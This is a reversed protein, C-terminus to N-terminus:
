RIGLDKGIAEIAADNSFHHQIYSSYKKSMKELIDTDNYLSIIADAFEEADDKVVVVSEIGKIGEAGVSTTIIPVGHYMAEVVKGKIGAGYRLPVIVLRSNNYYDRLEEDTVFGRIILNKSGLKLIEDPANSGIITVGLNHEALKPMIEQAFWLVADVNPRHGFGGVFIIEKRAKFDREVEEVNDFLYAPIAKISAGPFGKVVEDVEIQSPYYACDVMSILRKEQEKWSESSKLLDPEGTLEFERMERLFHLDHGYYFIKASTNEKIYDIYKISIHPRNLM